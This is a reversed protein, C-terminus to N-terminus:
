HSILQSTGGTASIKDQASKSFRHAHITLKKSLQGNGLVKLEDFRSKILGKAVLESPYVEAGVEFADDIAQLNIIAVDSAFASNNFGRKAIRRALPMQGGEFSLRRSSGARSYYGKHGHGCTKGHGSGMGRGVRKRKKRRTVGSNVDTIIM